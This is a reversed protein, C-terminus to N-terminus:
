ECSAKLSTACREIRTRRKEDWLLDKAVLCERAEYKGRDVLAGCLLDQALCEEISAKISSESVTGEELSEFPETLPTLRGARLKTRM